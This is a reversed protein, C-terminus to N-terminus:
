TEMKYIKLICKYRKRSIANELNNGLNKMSAICINECELPEHSLQQMDNVLITTREMHGTAHAGGLTGM